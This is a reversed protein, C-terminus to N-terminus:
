KHRQTRLCSRRLLPVVLSCLVKTGILVHCREGVSPGVGTGPGRARSRHGCHPRTQRGWATPWVARPQEGRCQQARRGRESPRPVPRTSQDTRGRASRPEATVSLHGFPELICPQAGAGRIGPTAEPQRVCSGASKLRSHGRQALERPVPWHRKTGRFLFIFFYLGQPSGQPGVSLTM